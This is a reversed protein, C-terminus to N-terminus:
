AIGERISQMNRLEKGRGAAASLNDGQLQFDEMADIFDDNDDESAEQADKENRRTTAELDVGMPKQLTDAPNAAASFLPLENVHPQTPTTHIVPQPQPQPQQELKAHELTTHKDEFSDEQSDAFSINHADKSNM